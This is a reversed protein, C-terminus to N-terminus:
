PSQACSKEAMTLVSRYRVGPLNYASMFRMTGLSGVILSHICGIDPLGGMPTVEQALM